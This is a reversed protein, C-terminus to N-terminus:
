SYVIFFLHSNHYCDKAAAVVIVVIIIFAIAVAFVVGVANDNIRNFLNFIFCVEFLVDETM